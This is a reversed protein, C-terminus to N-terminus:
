SWENLSCCVLFRIWFGGYVMGGVTLTGEKVKQFFLPKCAACVWTTGYAILNEEPFERGCEACKHSLVSSAQAPEIVVAGLSQWSAMGQTWVLADKTIRGEERLKRFEEDSAPGIQKGDESYYWSM